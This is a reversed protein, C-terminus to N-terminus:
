FFFFVKGFKNRRLDIDCVIILTIRRKIILRKLNEGCYEIGKVFRLIDVMKSVRNIVFFYVM